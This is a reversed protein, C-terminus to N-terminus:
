KGSAFTERPLLLQSHFDGVQYEEPIKCNLQKMGVWLYTGKLIPQRTKLPTSQEKPKISHGQTGFGMSVTRHCVAKWRGTCSHTIHSTPWLLTDWHKSFQAAVWPFHLIQGWLCPMTPIVARDSAGMLGTSRQLICKPLSQRQAKLRRSFSGVKDRTRASVLVTSPFCLLWLKPSPSTPASGSYRVSQM